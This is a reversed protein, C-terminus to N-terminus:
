RSLVSVVLPMLESSPFRGLQGRAASMEDFVKLRHVDKRNLIADGAVRGEGETGGGLVEDEGGIRNGESVGDVDEQCEPVFSHPDLRRLAKQQVAQTHLVAEPVNMHQTLPPLPGLDAHMLHAEGVEAVIDAVDAVALPVPEHSHDGFMVPTSHDGTVLVSFKVEPQAQMCSWGTLLTSYSAYLIRVMSDMSWFLAAPPATAVFCHDVSSLVCVQEAEHLLRVIQGVLLDMVELYRVRLGWLRDHGCDDVAKVHVFGFQFPREHRSLAECIAHAKLHFPSDYSGTTDAVQIWEMGLTM